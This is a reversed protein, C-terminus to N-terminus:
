PAMIQTNMESINGLLKLALPCDKPVDVCQIKAAIIGDKTGISKEVIPGPTTNITKAIIITNWNNNTMKKIGSVLPIERSSNLM